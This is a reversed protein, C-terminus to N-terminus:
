YNKDEWAPLEKMRKRVKEMAQAKDMDETDMLFNAWNDLVENYPKLDGQEDSCYICFDKDPNKMSFDEDKIMPMGCSVCRKNM